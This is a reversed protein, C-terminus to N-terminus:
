NGYYVYQVYQHYCMISLQCFEAHWESATQLLQSNAPNEATEAAYHGEKQPLTNKYGTWYQM